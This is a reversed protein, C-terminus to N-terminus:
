QRQYDSNTISKKNRSELLLYAIMNTRLRATDTERSEEKGLRSPGGETREQAANAATSLSQLSEGRSNLVSTGAQINSSRTSEEEQDEEVVIECPVPPEKRAAARFKKRLQEIRIGLAGAAAEAVRRNAEPLEYWAEEQLVVDGAQLFRKVLSGTIFSSWDRGVGLLSEVMGSIAFSEGEFNDMIEKGGTLVHVAVNGALPICALISNVLSMAQEIEQYHLIGQVQKHMAIQRTYLDLITNSLMNMECLIGNSEQFMEACGGGLIGAEQAESIFKVVLRRDERGMRISSAVKYLRNWWFYDEGKYKRSRPVHGSKVAAMVILHASAWEEISESHFKSAVVFDSADIPAVSKEQVAHLIYKLPPSSFAGGGLLSAQVSQNYEIIYDEVGYLPKLISCYGGTRGICVRGDSLVAMAVLGKSENSNEKKCRSICYSICQGSEVSVFFIHSNTMTVIVIEKNLFCIHKIRDRIHIQNLRRLNIKRQLNYEDQIRHIYLNTGGDGTVIFDDSVAVSHFPINEISHLLEGSSGNWVQVNGGVVAVFIGNCASINSIAREKASKCRKKDQLKTGNSHKVIVIEGDATGVLMRATSAKAICRFSNNSVKLQDLLVGTTARWTLLMGDKDVSALVDDCVHVLGTVERKHEIFVRNPEGQNNYGFIKVENSRYTAVAILEHTSVCAIARVPRNGCKLTVEPNLIIAKNRHEADQEESPLQMNQEHFPTATYPEPFPNPFRFKFSHCVNLLM